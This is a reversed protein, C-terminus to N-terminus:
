AFVVMKASEPVSQYRVSSGWTAMLVLVCTPRLVRAVMGVHSMASQKEVDGVLTAVQVLVHTQLHALGVM